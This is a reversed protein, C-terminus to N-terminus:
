WFLQSLIAFFLSVKLLRDSSKVDNNKGNRRQEARLFAVPCPLM